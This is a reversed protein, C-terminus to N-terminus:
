EWGVPLSFYFSAGKDVESEAWVEGGHRLVIRKVIALGVGTGEFEKASQLRQFVGFLKNFYKMDFGVGNDKICYICNLGEKRCSISIVPKEKKSSYKIANSVLNTWVQRLMVPDGQTDCIDGINMEIRERTAPDALEKYVSSVLQKMNIASRQMETRNFRSFTLLDDILCGMKLSNEQIISCIRKGEDDLQPAYDEVLINTFGHMGRLPAHLDHSVSYSFSELERNAEELQATREAVRAELESNFRLIEGAARKSETIDRFYWVRGLYQDGAGVMPASYRNIVRGDKLNIEDMSTAQQNENIAHVLHIFTDPDSVHDTVFQLVPGDSRAELLGPSIGWLEIFRQNYSLILNNEDVVLIADLSTEQQTSLIINKFQLDLEARKRETIDVGMILLYPKGILDVKEVSILMTGGSQDKKNIEVEFNRVCGNAILIEKMKEREAPNKWLRIDRFTRGIIEERSYGTVNLFANNVEVWKESTVDTISVPIPSAHFTSYFLAESERLAVESRKRNTIDTALGVTYQEGGIEILEVSILVDRIEGNKKRSRIEMNKCCNSQKLQKFMSERQHPDDWLKLEVSTRGTMEGPSFGHIEAFAPNVDTILSDSLRTLVIGVPSVKFIVSLRAENEHLAEEVLRRGTIDQSNLLALRINGAYHRVPQINNLFFRIKGNISTQTEIVIGENSKLVQKINQLQRQALEQPFFDNMHKGIIDAPRLDLFNAAVENVYHFYGDNDITAIVSNSSEILSRYKAESARLEEGTKLLKRKQDAHDIAREVASPLRELRDKLVYDVAGQKLLEVAMIEGISGSICIFPVEPCHRNCIKLAAFADFDPLNYDALIFDYVNDQVLKAFEAEKEVRTIEMNYGAEILKESIIEFDMVSDELSLVKYVNVEEHKENMNYGETM